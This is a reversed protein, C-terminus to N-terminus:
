FFIPASKLLRFSCTKKGSDLVDKFMKRKKQENKQVAMWESQRKMYHGLAFNRHIHRGFMDSRVKAEQKCLEAAIQSKNKVDVNRWVAELARSGNKNCALQM